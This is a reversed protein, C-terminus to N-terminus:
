ISGAVQPIPMAVGAFAQYAFASGGGYRIVAPGRFINNDPLNFLFPEDGSVGGLDLRAVGVGAGLYPRFPLNWQWGFRQPLIDYAINAMVAPLTLSGEIDTLPERVGLPMGLANARATDIADISNSGYSGELETRWGSDFAWGLDLHGAPGTDTIVEVKSNASLMSGAFNPGVAAGVYPHGAWQAAAAAPLLLAGLLGLLRARVLNKREMERASQVPLTCEEVMSDRECYV